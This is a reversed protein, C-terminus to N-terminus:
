NSHTKANLTEANLQQPKPSTHKLPQNKPATYVRALKLRDYAQGM